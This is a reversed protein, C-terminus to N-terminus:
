EIEGPACILVTGVIVDNHLAAKAHETAARNFPLGHLKGEENIVMIRGFPLHILEIYGGVVSQLEDLTFAEGNNPHTHYEEGHHSIITAM